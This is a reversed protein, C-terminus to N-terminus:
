EKHMCHAGVYVLVYEHLFCKRMERESVKTAMCGFPSTEYVHTYSSIDLVKHVRGKKCRTSRANLQAKFYRNTGCVCAQCIQALAATLNHTGSHM